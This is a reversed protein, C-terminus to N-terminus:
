KSMSAVNAMSMEPALMRQDRRRQLSAEYRAMLVAEDKVKQPQPDNMEMAERIVRLDVASVKEVKAGRSKKKPEATFTIGAPERSDNKASVVFRDSVGNSSPVYSSVQSREVEAQEEALRREYEDKNALYIQAIMKAQEYVETIESMSMPSIANSKNAMDEIFARQSNAEGDAYMADFVAKCILKEKTTPFLYEFFGAKQNESATKYYEAKYAITKSIANRIEQVSVM